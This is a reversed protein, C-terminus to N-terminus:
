KDQQIPRLSFKGKTEMRFFRGLLLVFPNMEISVLRPEMISLVLIVSIVIILVYDQQENATKYIVAYGILILIFFLIGYDLLMKGYANDVFNYTEWIGDTNTLTGFGVWEIKQGFWKIGYRDIAFNLLEIRGSLIDNLKAIWQPGDIYLLSLALIGFSCVGLFLYYIINPIHKM